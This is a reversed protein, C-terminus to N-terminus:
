APGTRGGLRFIEPEGVATPERHPEGSRENDEAFLMELQRDDGDELGALGLRKGIEELSPLPFLAHVVADCRATVAELEAKHEPDLGGGELKRMVLAVRRANLKDFASQVSM